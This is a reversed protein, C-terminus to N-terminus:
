AAVSEDPAGIPPPALPVPADDRVASVGRAADYAVRIVRDLGDRVQEIHTILIVQPFRDGLHRLLGLVHQRRAEDLAGFIEDLVLLSFPQGAREAIMQSIALRLVLNAIDEEGGSIVPKPVGDDLITVEYNENLDVQDYRGDTLDALFGSALEAIEPRMAANLDARLDSFSRDLENHLRLRSKRAAIERERAARERARKEVEIVDHEARTLAGRAEVLALEAERLAGLARDYRDKALRYREESYGEAAVAETLTRVRQEATSLDREAQEAEPVLGEARQARAELAAAELAIPDLKLLEARVSDHRAADYGTPRADLGQKLVDARRRAADLEQRARAREEVQARVLGARESARRLEDRLKDREGEASLVGHPPQALQELRGRFYKGDDIVAQLQRDLVGLVAAHEVGLQRRCTPCEGEPGLAAIKERQERVDDYQKLLEARRTAAYEKERVWAARETEAAQEAAQLRDGLARVESEAQELADAAPELERTRIELRTIARSLEDLQAQGARRAAEERQLRELEGLESRLAAVPALELARERLQEKAALAEALEKDLRQFEQRRTVVAQEAMRREGDLSLTRERRAVWENWRPEERACGTQATTRATEAASAAHRAGKLRQEIERREAQLVAPDPLASELARLEAAVANREERIREQAISLQEYRLVRSLFAAREPRSLAGMVALERQGTFYTNFFEDHTMGLSRELRATVETLSNAVVAGDVSLEAAHLGRMVRYTHAGLGFDMEVRVSSRPKAGLSRISDKDGRAAANGYIAWAIAELLTTKGSGNPGIIGTIGPGFVIETDVHQRFNVLKLRYLQM